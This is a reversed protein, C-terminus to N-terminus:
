TQYRENFARYWNLAQGNLLHVVSDSLDSAPVRDTKQPMDIQSLFDNLGIGRRWLKWDRVASLHSRGSRIECRDNPNILWNQEPM